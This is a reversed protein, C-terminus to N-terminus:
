EDDDDDDYYSYYSSKEPEVQLKMNRRSEKNIFAMEKYSFKNLDFNLNKLVSLNRSYRHENLFNEITSFVKSSLNCQVFEVTEFKKPSIRRCIREFDKERFDVDVFSLSNLTPFDELNTALEQCMKPPIHISHFSLKTLYKSKLLTTCIIKLLYTIYQPLNVCISNEITVKNIQVRNNKMEFLLKTSFVVEKSKKYLVNPLARFFQSYYIAPIRSFDFDLIQGDESANGLMQMQRLTLPPVQKGSM